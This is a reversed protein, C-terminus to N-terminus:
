KWLVVALDNARNLLLLWDPPRMEALWDDAAFDLGDAVMAPECGVLRRSGLQIFLPAVSVEVFFVFLLKNRRHNCTTM